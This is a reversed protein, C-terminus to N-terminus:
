HTRGMRVRGVPREGDVVDLEAGDGFVSLALRTVAEQYALVDPDPELRTWGTGRPAEGPALRCTHAMLGFYPVHVWTGDRLDYYDTIPRHRGEGCRNCVLGSCFCASVRGDPTTGRAERCTPCIRLGPPLPRAAARSTSRSM